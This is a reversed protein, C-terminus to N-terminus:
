SGHEGVCCHNFDFPINRQQEWLLKSEENFLPDILRGIPVIAAVQAGAIQLTSAASQARAGTTWTDDVVLLTEQSVDRTVEYGNNSAVNFGLPGEGRELSPMYAASLSKSLNLVNEIPHPGGGGQSSPVIVIGDWGPVGANSAICGSHDRLFRTLLAALQYTAEQRVQPYPSRKYARLFTHLQGGLRSLSIPVVLDCPM